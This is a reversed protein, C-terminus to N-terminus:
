RFRCRGGPRRDKIEGCVMRRGPDCPGGRDGQCRGGAPGSSGHDLPSAVESASIAEDLLQRNVLAAVLVPDDPLLSPLMLIEPTAAAAGPWIV